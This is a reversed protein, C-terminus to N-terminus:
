SILPNSNRFGCIRSGFPSTKITTRLVSIEGTFNSTGRQGILDLLLYLPATKNRQELVGRGIPLVVPMQNVVNTGPFLTLGGLRLM